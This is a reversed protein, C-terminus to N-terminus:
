GLGTGSGVPKTTFFPDFIKSQIDAKIGSGNDAIHIAIWNQEIAETHIRITPIPFPCSLPSSPHLYIREGKEWEGKEKDRIGVLSREVRDSASYGNPHVSIPFDDTGWEGNKMELADIANSLLNMFVQNLQGPYCEVTPLQSYEKIVQIQPRHPQQKLRHQLILLTHEIGEHIDVRKRQAQDLRSFNRLSLVIQSIREAGEQMSALLKPFDQAIFDPDILELQEAIEPVPNQYRQRYLQVLHLLNQAYETAPKINCYIFSIPNNIEHAIGAIMQGLGSMKEAQILQSQTHKLQELTLELAQAKERERTESHRLAEEALKRDSIDSHTGSMRVVEGWENRIVKGRSLVWPTSGDRHCMRFEIQWQSLQGAFLNALTARVLSADDPYVLAVLEDLNPGPRDLPYGIMNRWPPSYYFENAELNFDFLGDRNAAIAFQLRQESERLAEEARKRDSVDHGEPILLLVNGAEDRVSKISFDITAVTDGAGRVEVEYRVFEDQAATAIAERLQEQKPSLPAIALKEGSGERWWGTQWFPVGVIDNHKIGGFDLATQNVEIVRGDPALLGTFQFSNNFIARFRRESDRLAEEAQKRETVDRLSILYAATNEWTINVIRMEAVLLEGSPRVIEVETSEDGVVPMGLSEGLLEEYARGFLATAAPNIFLVQHTQQDQVILSESITSVIQRLRHENFELCKLLANNITETQKRETIDRGESILLVVNGMEDRVPKISFDITTVNDGAGKVEVEYRVLEGKAATAIAEKLQEQKLSTLALKEGSGEKWWQAEWLPQGVLEDHQIGGFDLMTQNAEIVIGDPKLLGTLQFSNNFIAQFRRESERLVSETRQREILLMQRIANRNSNSNLEPNAKELQTTRPLALAKPILVVLALATYFSIFATIAKLLGSLSYTPHWLTWVELVHTTGDAVIFSAFLLIIWNFPLDNRKRLFHILTISISYYALAILSDSLVHRSALEPKWTDFCSGYPLLQGSTFFFNPLVWLM